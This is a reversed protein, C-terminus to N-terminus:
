AFTVCDSEGFKAPPNLDLWLRLLVLEIQHGFCVALTAIGRAEDDRWATTIHDQFGRM